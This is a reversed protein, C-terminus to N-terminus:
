VYNLLHLQLKYFGPWDILDKNNKSCNCHPCAPVMNSLANKGGRSIPVIHDVTLNSSKEGCYSCCNNYYAKIDEWTEVDKYTTLRYPLHRGRMRMAADTNDHPKGDLRFWKVLEKKNYGCQQLEYVRRAVDPNNDITEGIKPRPYFLHYVKGAEKSVKLDQRERPSLYLHGTSSFGYM